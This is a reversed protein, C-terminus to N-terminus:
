SALVDSWIKEYESAVDSMSVFVEYKAIEEASPNVCPNNKTHEPAQEAAEMVPSIGGLYDANKQAIDPRCLFNIFAEANEKNEANKLIVASDYWINTGEEPIAYEIRTEAQIDEEMQQILGIDCSWIVSLAGEKGIMKDKVDDGTYTIVLPKQDLLKQKAAALEAPDKTNLSYGLSLLAVGISDRESNMMFIQKEYKEDWLIDWSTVPETVMDPNYAICVTGWCYPVSYKNEPDYAQSLLKPDIGKVNPVNDFNIEALMDEEIMKTIMYDSPICVDYSNKGSNKVKLYMDENTEFTDYIVKIGTEEEFQELVSEDIYDGWNYVKVVNKNSSCGSFPSLVVVVLLLAALMKVMNKKM